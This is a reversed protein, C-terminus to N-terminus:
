LFRTFTAIKRHTFDFTHTHTHACISPHACMKKRTTSFLTLDIAKEGKEEDDRM